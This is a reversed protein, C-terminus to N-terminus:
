FAVAAPLRDTVCASQHWYGALRCQHGVLELKGGVFYYDHIFGQGLSRPREKRLCGAPLWGPPGM